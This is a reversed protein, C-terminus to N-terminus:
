KDVLKTLTETALKEQQKELGSVMREISKLESPIPPAGGRARVEGEDTRHPSAAATTAKHHHESLPTHTLDTLTSTVGSVGGGSGPTVSLPSSTTSMTTKTFPLTYPNFRHPNRSAALLSSLHSSSASEAAQSLAAAYHQYLIPHGALALHGLTPLGFASGASSSSTHDSNGPQLSNASLYPLNHAPHSGGLLMQGVSFPLSGPHLGSHYLYPWMPHTVTPQVVTVPTPSTPSDRVHPHRVVEGPSLSRNSPSPSYNGGSCMPHMIGSKERDIFLPLRQRASNERLAMELTTLPPPSHHPPEEHVPSQHGSSQRTEEDEHPIHLVPAPPSGGETILCTCFVHSM